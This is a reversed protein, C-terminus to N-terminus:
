HADLADDWDDWDSLQERLWESEWRQDLRQWALQRRKSPRKAVVETEDFNELDVDQVFDADFEDFDDAEYENEKAM